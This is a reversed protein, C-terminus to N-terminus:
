GPQCIQGNLAFGSPAAYGSAVYGITVTAGPAIVPNWHLNGATVVGGTHSVLRANWIAAIRQSDPMKWTLTWGDVTTAGVNRVTIWVEAGRRQVHATCASVPGTTVAVQNSLASSNGAEDVARVAFRYGTRPSLGAVTFATSPHVPPMLFVRGVVSGSGDPAIALVEYWALVVNDTSPNWRLAVTTEGVGTVALSTPASPPQSDGPPMTYRLSPPATSRNGAADLAWVGFTYTRSPLMGGLVIRNTPTRHLMAVDTFIQSVHYELVGVNDTSPTWTLEVTNATAGVVTIAGPASPPETDEAAAQAATGGGAVLAAVLVPLILTRAWRRIPRYPRSRM